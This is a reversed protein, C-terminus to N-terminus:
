FEVTTRETMTRLLSRYVVDTIKTHVYYYVFAYLSM